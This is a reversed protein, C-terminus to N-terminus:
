ARCSFADPYVFCLTRTFRNVHAFIYEDQQREACRPTVTLYRNRCTPSHVAQTSPGPTLRDLRSASRKRLRAAPNWVGLDADVAVAEAVAVAEVVLAEAAVAAAAVAVAVAVWDERLLQLMASHKGTFDLTLIFLDAMPHLTFRANFPGVSQIGSLMLQLRAPAFNLPILKPHTKEYVRPIDNERIECLM